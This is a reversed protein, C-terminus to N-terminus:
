YNFEVTNLSEVKDKWELRDIQTKLCSELEANTPKTTVDLGVAKGQWVAVRISFHEHGKLKCPEYVAPDKLPEALAEEEIHIRQATSPVAAIAEEVSMGPTFTPAESEAAAPEGSESDSPAANGSDGSESELVSAPDDGPSEAQTPKACAGLGLALGACVFLSVGRLRRSMM